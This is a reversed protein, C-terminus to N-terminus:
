SVITDTIEEYKVYPYRVSFTAGDGCEECRHPYSPPNMGYVMGTPRMKGGCKDCNMDIRFTKVETKTEM